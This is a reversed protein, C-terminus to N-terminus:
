FKSPATAVLRAGCGLCLRCCMVLVLAGRSAAAGVLNSRNKRSVPGGHQDGGRGDSRYSFAEDEGKKISVLNDVVYNAGNGKSRAM